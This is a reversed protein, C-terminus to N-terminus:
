IKDFFNSLDFLTASGKHFPVDCSPSKIARDMLSMMIYPISPLPAMVRMTM